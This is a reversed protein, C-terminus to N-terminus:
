FINTPKITFIFTMFWIWWFFILVLTFINFVLNAVDKPLAGFLTNILLLFFCSVHNHSQEYSFHNFIYKHLMLIFINNNVIKTSIRLFFISKHIWIDIHLFFLLFSFFNSFKTSPFLALMDILQAIINCNFVYLQFSILSLFSFSFNTYIYFM